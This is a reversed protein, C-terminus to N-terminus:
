GPPEAETFTTLERAVDDAEAAGIRQFIELAAVATASRIL